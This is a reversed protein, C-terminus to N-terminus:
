LGTHGTTGPRFRFIRFPRQREIHERPELVLEPLASDSIYLWGDPGFALGDPWRISESRILTRPKRDHGVIYVANHEVDTVYVNGAPDIGFGDSLPKHAYYEVRASLEEASLQPNVLDALAVRYLDSGSIAGFYLWEPGLAIGDVGGKLGIIGGLWSLESGNAVIQYNEASVADYRELLRRAAGSAVDYVILAPAQRWFSMDALVVTTGDASVQLDQLFSGAPAIEAPLEVNLLLENTALDFALLRAQRLGHNGHDVTWLRNQSDVTLGLVTDFLELQSGVDPYPVSAGEVFELLRNGRPRSEPHVTFFLRGDASVAVNGIPESYALVTELGANSLLPPNSLDPYRDGGGYRLRLLTALIFALLLFFLLIKKM